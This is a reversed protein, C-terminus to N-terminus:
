KTADYVGVAIDFGEVDGDDPVRLTAVHEYGLKFFIEEGAHSPLVGQSVADMQSLRKGWEILSTGHGRNWYAPHVVLKDCISMGTLYKQEGAEKTENILRLRRLNMDRNPSPEPSCPDTFNFQGKRGSGNEFIWSAVGVVVRRPKEGYSAKKSAAVDYGELLLADKGEDPVQEDEAVVVVANPDCVQERFTNRWSALADQPYQEYHPRAFKFIESGRFGLTGVVGM